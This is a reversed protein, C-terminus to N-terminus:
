QNHTNYTTVKWCVADNSNYKNHIESNDNSDHNDIHCDFDIQYYITNVQRLPLDRHLNPGGKPRDRHNQRTTGAEARFARARGHHNAQVRLRPLVRCPCASWRSVGNHGQLSKWAEAFFFRSNVKQGIGFHVTHPTSPVKLPPITTLIKCWTCWTCSVQKEHHTRGIM